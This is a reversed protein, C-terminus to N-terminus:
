KCKHVNYIRRIENLVNEASKIIIKNIKKYGDLNNEFRRYYVECCKHKSLECDNCNEEYYKCFPCTETGILIEILLYGDNNLISICNPSADYKRGINGKLLERGM